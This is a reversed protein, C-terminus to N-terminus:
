HWFRDGMRSSIQALDNPSVETFEMVVLISELSPVKLEVDMIRAIHYMCRKAIMKRDRLCSLIQGILILSGWILELISENPFQFKAIQTKGDIYDYCACLWDM